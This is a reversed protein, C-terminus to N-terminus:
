VRSSISRPAANPESANEDDALNYDAVIKARERDIASGDAASVVSYIKGPDMPDFLVIQDAGYRTFVHKWFEVTEELGSPIPFPTQQAEVTTEAAGLRLLFLLGIFRRLA